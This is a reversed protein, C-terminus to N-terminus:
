PIWTVVGTVVDYKGKVIRVTGALIKEEILPSLVRLEEAVMNVNKTISAEILASQTM